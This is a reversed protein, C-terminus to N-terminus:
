ILEKILEFALNQKRYVEGDEISYLKSEDSKFNHVNQYYGTIGNYVGFATNKTSKTLQTENTLSYVMINDILNNFRTSTENAYYQNIKEDDNDTMTKLIVDLYQEDSMKRRAMKGFIDELENFYLNSAGILNAANEINNSLSGNHRIKIRNTSNKLALNLTNNCVIRIPTFGVNISSDGNHSNTLFIYKELVDDLGGVKIYSPLKASIFVREGNKLVGATEFIAEKSGVINDFFKFADKNQLVNYTSGVYGLVNCLDERVVAFNDKSLFTKGNPLDVMTPIKIVNFDLNAMKIAEESTLASDVYQGLGHWAKEKVGFFSTKGLDSRFELNHAM